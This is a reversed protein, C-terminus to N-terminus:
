SAEWTGNRTRSNEEGQQDGVRSGWMLVCTPARAVAGWRSPLRYEPLHANQAGPLPRSCLINWFLRWTGWSEEECLSGEHFPSGGDESMGWHQQVYKYLLRHPVPSPDRHCCPKRAPSIAESWVKCVLATPMVQLEQHVLEAVLPPSSPAM